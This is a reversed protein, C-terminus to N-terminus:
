LGSQKRYFIVKRLANAAWMGASRATPDSDHLLQNLPELSREEGNVRWDPDNLDPLLADVARPDSSQGLPRAADCRATWDQRHLPQILVEIPVVLKSM